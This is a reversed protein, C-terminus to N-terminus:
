GTSILAEAPPPPLPMRITREGSSSLGWSSAAAVSALAAKPSPETNMSFSSSRGRWTSIWIMASLCPLTTAKGSLSQVTWRRWWFSTSSDGDGASM